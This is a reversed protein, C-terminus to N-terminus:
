PTLNQQDSGIGTGFTGQEAKLVTFRANVFRGEGDTLTLHHIGSPLALAMRHDGRTAGQPSGNLDWYLVQEPYRHAALLVLETPRDDARIPLLLRAGNEPYILAIPSSADESVPGEWRPVAQHGPHSRLYYHEMSPPLIFWPVMYGPRHASVRATGAENVRIRHHYPCTPTRNARALVALTDVDPCDMGARHGSISCVIMPLLGEHPVPFPTGPPLLGLVHFLIPAAASTGTLGPRGEGNANGVWVGVAHTGNLGIAWADRHGFSTGTKWAIGDPTDYHEWGAESDPRKTLSLARLTHHVAGAEVPPRAGETKTEGDAMDSWLRPPRVVPLATPLGTRQLLIRAMSAYAGTLEWLTSEAGGMMLALGYHEETRDLHNLGFARLTNLTRRIGHSRLARVAPVNISRALAISAPVAGDYGEDFNRPAFGDYQTPLDAVLQDPMLEGQELTAAYLFPKLLSGTSRPAQVLDVQGAHDPGADPVNGVYALVEGSAIDMVLVAANHVENARAAPAHDMVARMVREQLAADITTTTLMGSRGERRALELLHPARRPMAVPEDPLPEDMALSWTTSDIDGAQLLRGLLRDRKARLAERNRGPHMRTPANPLVALTACEAWSLQDAPRGFWRWAAAELGVVNGGFPAHDAYTRLTWGKTHRLEIRLALAMERLKQLYTRPMSGMAMRALQMTITSGGSVVRKAARNQKWARYLSPIHIGPHELFNRDEFQIICRAFREPVEGTSPMRWQGDAAVAAGLTAGHRDTVVTSLPENFLPAM